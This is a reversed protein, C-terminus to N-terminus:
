RTDKGVGRPDGQLIKLYLRLSREIVFGQFWRRGEEGMRKYRVPDQVYDALGQAIRGPSDANIMPYLAEYQGLYLEDDRHHMVPKASALGENVVGYTVYSLGFEGAVIDALSLAIRIEKRHMQPLWRVFQEIGLDSVLRKTALVDPGYEVMILVPNIARGLGVFEAFGRVLKDNGKNLFPDRFSAWRQSCHHFVVLDSAARIKALEEYWHSRHCFRLVAGPEWDPAYLCPPPVRIRRGGLRLPALKREHIGNTEDYSVYRAKRIGDRQSSSFSLYHVLHKPNKHFQFFPYEYIDNGYPVFLDLARGIKNLFAPATGCGVLKDYGELDRAVEDPSVSLFRFPHGWALQHTYKQYALDFMDASPHFHSHEYDLLFLHTDMGADRFYRALACLNNNMNGICAVKM